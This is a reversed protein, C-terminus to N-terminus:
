SYEITFDYPFTQGPSIPKNTIGVAGDMENAGRMSLGHWHMSTGGEELANEVDIIVRDGLRVELMPGPSIEKVLYVQKLVGDPRRWGPKIRWQHGIISAERFAHGQPHLQYVDDYDKDM